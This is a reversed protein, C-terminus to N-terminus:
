GHCVAQVTGSVSTTSEFRSLLFVAESHCLANIIVWEHHEMSILLQHFFLSRLTSKYYMKCGTWPPDFARSLGGVGLTSYLLSALRGRISVQISGRVDSSKGGLCFAGSRGRVDSEDILRIKKWLNGLSTM